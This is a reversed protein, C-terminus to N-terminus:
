RDLSCAVTQYTQTEIKCHPTPFGDRHYSVTFNVRLEVEIPNDPNIEQPFLLTTHVKCTQRMRTIPMGDKLDGEKKWEQHLTFQLDEPLQAIKAELDERTDETIYKDCTLIVQLDKIPTTLNLQEKTPALVGPYYVNLLKATRTRHADELQEKLQMKAIKTFCDLLTCRNTLSDEIAKLAKRCANLKAINEKTLKM